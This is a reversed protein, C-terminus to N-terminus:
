RSKCEIGTRISKVEKIRDYDCNVKHKDLRHIQFDELAHFNSFILIMILKWKLIM